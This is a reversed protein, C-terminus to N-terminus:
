QIEKESNRRDHIAIIGECQKALEDDNNEKAGKLIPALDEKTFGLLIQYEVVSELDGNERALILSKMLHSELERDEVISVVKNNDMQLMVKKGYFWLDGHGYINVSSKAFGLSEKADPNGWIEIVENSTMGVEISEIEFTKSTDNDKSCGFLVFLSFLTLTLKKM